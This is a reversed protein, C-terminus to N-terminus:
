RRAKRDGLLTHMGALVRAIQEHEAEDLEEFVDALDDLGEERATRAYGGCDSATEITLHLLRILNHFTESVPTDRAEAPSSPMDSGGQRLAVQAGSGGPPVLPSVPKPRM